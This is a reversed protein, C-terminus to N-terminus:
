ARKWQFVIIGIHLPSVNDYSTSRILIIVTGPTCLSFLLIVEDSLSTRYVLFILSVSEYSHIAYPFRIKCLIHFSDGSITKSKQQSGVGVATDFFDDEVM